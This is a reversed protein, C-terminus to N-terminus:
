LEINNQDLSIGAVPVVPNNVTITFTIYVDPNPTSYVKIVSTGATAGTASISFYSDLTIATVANGSIVEYAMTKNDVTLSDTRSPNLAITVTNGTEISISTHSGTVVNPAGQGTVVVYQNTTIQTPLNIYNITCTDTFGELEVTLVINGDWAQKAYIYASLGDDVMSLYDAEEGAQDGDWAIYWAVNQNTANAPEIAVNLTVGNSPGIANLTHQGRFQSVPISTESSDSTVESTVESSGGPFLSDKHQYGYIGAGVVLGGVLFAILAIVIKKFKM